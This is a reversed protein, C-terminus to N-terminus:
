EQVCRVSFGYSRGAADYNSGSNSIVFISHNDFPTSSWYVGFTGRTDGEGNFDRYGSATLFVKPVDNSYPTFGTAWYGRQGLTNTTLSSRNVHLEELEYYTPVRWGKPCPDYETKQPSDDTGNNWLSDDQIDLWDYNSSSYYTFFKNKNSESQGEELSVGGNSVNPTMADGDYGQGYKRGWQYLKGWKYESSHYGCNVPAWVTLGIPIGKGHNVSYEDIYDVNPKARGIVSIECYAVRGGVVASITANGASVTTVKGTEDITAVATNSSSWVVTKDSALSPRITANLQYTDGEYLTLTSSNLRIISVPIILEDLNLQTINVKLREAVGVMDLDTFVNNPLFGMLQSDKIIAFSIAFTDSLNTCAIDELMISFEYENGLGSGIGIGSGSNIWIPIGSGTPTSALDPDYSCFDGNIYISGNYFCWDFNNFLNNGTTENADQNIFVHMNIYSETDSIIDQDLELYVSLALDNCYAKVTKLGTATANASCKSVSVLSPDLNEWDSFDGDINIIPSGYEEPSIEGDSNIKIVPMVLVSSRFITNLTNTTITYTQEENDTVTVAFGRSFLVPPLAVIFDTAIRENLHVGAGCDLTVSKATDEDGIMTIVPIHSDSDATITAAGSLKENNTGTIKISKVIQTGKLQLKMAGLVNKFRLTHDQLGETIAVMPFAGNSFSNETYYQVAPLIINDINYSSVESTSNVVNNKSCSLSEEYPYVAINTAIEMGAYFDDNISGSNDNVISFVGKGTGATADALQYKDAINCGQFIAIQDGESWLINNNEGLTTKTNRDFSESIAIFDAVSNDESSNEIVEVQCGVMLFLVSMMAIIFKKM